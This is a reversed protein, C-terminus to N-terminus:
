QSKDIWYATSNPGALKEGVTKAEQYTTYVGIRVRYCTRGNVEVVNLFAPFQQARYKEVWRAALDRNTYTGLQVVYGEGPATQPSIENPAVVVGRQPPLETILSEVALSEPKYAQPEIPVPEFPQRTGESVQPRSATAVPTFDGPPAASRANELRELSDLVAAIEKDVAEQEIADLDEQNRNCGNVTMIAVISAILFVRSM